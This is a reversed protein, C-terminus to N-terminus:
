RQLDRKTERRRQLRFSPMDTNVTTPFEELNHEAKFVRGVKRRKGSREGVFRQLDNL